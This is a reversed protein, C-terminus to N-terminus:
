GFSEIARQMFSQEADIYLLCNRNYSLDGLENVMTAFTDFVELDEYTVGAGCNLAIKEFVPHRQAKDLRFLHANAYVEMKSIEDTNNEKFKLTKVFSEFEEDSCVIGKETFAERIDQTTISDKSYFHLIETLFAYQARSLRTMIDISIISTLKLAFNGEEGNRTLGEISEILDKHIKQIAPLDYKELGEVVFNGVGHIKKSKM